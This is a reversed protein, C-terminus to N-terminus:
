EAKDAGCCKKFKKGSGCACLDNRGTKPAANKIPDPILANKGIAKANSQGPKKVAAQALQKRQPEFHDFLALVSAPITKHANLVIAERGKTQMVEQGRDTGILVISALLQMDKDLIEQWVAPDQGLALMFGQCWAEPDRAESDEEEEMAALEDEDLEFLIPEYVRNEIADLVANYHRMILKVMKNLQDANRVDPTDRGQESDWIWPLWVQPALVKPNLAIAALYGDLMSIDMGTPPLDASVLWDGLTDIDDQSLPQDIESM